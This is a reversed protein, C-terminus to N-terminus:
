LLGPPPEKPRASFGGGSKRSKHEEVLPALNVPDAVIILDGVRAVSEFRRQERALSLLPADPLLRVRRLMGAVAAPVPAAPDAPSAHSSARSSAAPQLGLALPLAAVPAVLEAALTRSRQSPRSDAGKAIQHQPTVGFGFKKGANELCKSRLYRKRLRDCLLIEDDIVGRRRIVAARLRDFLERARKRHEPRGILNETELDTFLNPAEHPDDPHAYLEEAFPPWTWFSQTENSNWVTWATYRWGDVRWSYGMLVLDHYQDWEWGKWSCEWGGVCADDWTARYDRHRFRSALAPRGSGDVDALFESATIPCRSMQSLAGLRRSSEEREVRGLRRPRQSKGASWMLPAKEFNRDAAGATSRVLGAQSIGSLPPVLATPEPLGALDVLTPFVDVLEFFASTRRGGGPSEFTSPGSQGSASFSFPPSSPPRHHRPDAVILPVRADSEFLSRKGWQGREGLAYGHDGLFLVVTSEDLGGLELASLVRGLQSDMYTVGASYGRLLERRMPDPFPAERLANQERSLAPDVLLPPGYTGGRTELHTSTSSGVSRSEPHDTGFYAFRDLYIDGRAFAPSGLPKISKSLFPL